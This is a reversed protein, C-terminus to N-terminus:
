RHSFCPMTYVLSRMWYQFSLTGSMLWCTFLAKRLFIVTKRLESYKSISIRSVQTASNTCKTSIRMLGMNRIMISPVAPHIQIASYARPLRGKIM